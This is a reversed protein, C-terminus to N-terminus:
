ESIPLAILVLSGDAVLISQGVTVSTALAIYSCTLKIKDDKFNYDTTLTVKENKTLDIKKAGDAFFGSRIEPGKTDLM